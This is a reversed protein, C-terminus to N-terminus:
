DEHNLPYIKCIVLTFRPTLEIAHDWPRQPPMEDFSSKKFVRSFEKYEDPILGAKKMEPVEGKDM